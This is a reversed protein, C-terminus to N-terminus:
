AGEAFTNLCLLVEDPDSREWFVFARLLVRFKRASIAVTLMGLIMIIYNDLQKKQGSEM